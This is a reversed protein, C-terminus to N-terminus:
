EARQLAGGDARAGDGMSIIDSQRGRSLILQEDGDVDDDGDTVGAGDVM